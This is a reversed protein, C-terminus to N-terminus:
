KRRKRKDADHYECAVKQPIGIKKAFEKDKCAATMTREQKKSKSPM